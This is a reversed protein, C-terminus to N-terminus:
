PGAIVLMSAASAGINRARWALPLGVFDATLQYGKLAWLAMTAAVRKAAGGGRTRPGGPTRSANQPSLYRSGGIATRGLGSIMESGVPAPMMLRVDSYGLNRFFRELGRPTWRVYHNPPYDSLDRQAKLLLSSRRPSPVSALVYSSLFRERLRAVVTGPDPLHELVEFFTIAFPSPGDWRFDPAGGLIAHLGRRMLLDVLSESVEVGVSRFGAKSLVQLFRGTGCGCDIVLSGRSARSRLWNLALGEAPTLRPPPVLKPFAQTELVLRSEPSAYVHAYSKPVPLQSSTGEYVAVYRDRRYDPNLTFTVGCEGCTALQYSLWTECVEWVTSGCGVCRETQPM